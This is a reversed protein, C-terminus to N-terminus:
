KRRRLTFTDDNRSLSWGLAEADESCTFEDYRHVILRCLEQHGESRMLEVLQLDLVKYGMNVEDEAYLDDESMGLMEINKPLRIELSRLSPPLIRTLHDHSCEAIKGDDEQGCLAHHPLALQRLSVLDKLDGLSLNVNLSSDVEGADESELRLSELKTGHDRFAQGIAGFNIMQTETIPLGWHVSLVKLGPASALLRALGIADVFSHEFMVRQLKPSLLSKALIRTSEEECETGHVRFTRLEPRQLFEIFHDLQPQAECAVQIESLHPLDVHRLATMIPSQAVSDTVSFALFRLEPTFPLIMAIGAISPDEKGASAPDKQRLYAQIYTWSLAPVRAHGVAIQLVQSVQSTEKRHSASRRQERTSLDVSWLGSHVERVLKGTDPQELLTKLFLIPRIAYPDDAIFLTNYLEPQVIRSYARNTLAVNVLTSLGLRADRDKHLLRLEGPEHLFSFIHQLLEEPLEVPGKPPESPM